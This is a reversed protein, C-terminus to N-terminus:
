SHNPAFALGKSRRPSSCQSLFWTGLQNLHLPQACFILFNSRPMYNTKCPRPTEKTACSHLEQERGLVNPAPTSSVDPANIACSLAPSGPPSRPHNPPQPRLYQEQRLPTPTPTSSVAPATVACSAAPSGPPLRPHTPPQPHLYPHDPCYVCLTNLVEEKSRFYIPPNTGGDVSINIVFPLEIFVVYRDM